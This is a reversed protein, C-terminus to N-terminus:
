PSKSTTDALFETLFSHAYQCDIMALILYIFVFVNSCMSDNSIRCILSCQLFDSDFIKIMNYHRYTVINLGTYQCRDDQRVNANFFDRNFCLAIVMFFDQILYAGIMNDM